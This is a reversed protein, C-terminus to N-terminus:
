CSGLGCMGKSSSFRLTISRLRRMGVIAAQPHLEKPKPPRVPLTSRRSRGRCRTWKCFVSGAEGSMRVAWVLSASGATAAARRRGIARPDAAARSYMLALALDGPNAEGDRESGRRSKGPPAACSPSNAAPSVGAFRNVPCASPLSSGTANRNEPLPLWHAPMPRPAQFLELRETFGELLYVAM